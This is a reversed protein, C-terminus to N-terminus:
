VVPNANWIGTMKRPDDTVEILLQTGEGELSIHDSTQSLIRRFFPIKEARCVPFRSREIGWNIEQDKMGFLPHSQSYHRFMVRSPTLAMLGWSGLPVQSLGKAALFQGTSCYLVPEGWEAELARLAEAASMPAPKNFFEV